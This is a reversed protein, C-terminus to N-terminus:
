DPERGCYSNPSSGGSCYYTHEFITRSSAHTTRASSFDRSRRIYDAFSRSYGKALESRVSEGHVQGIAPNETCRRREATSGDFLEHDERGTELGARPNAQIAILRKQSASVESKLDHMGGEVTPILGELRKGMAERLVDKNREEERSGMGIKAKEAMRGMLELAGVTGQWKGTKKGLYKVLVPLLGIVLAESRLNSFLADIAYQASERITSNKDALADFVGAVLGEEQLLFVVEAIAEHPPFREFLAGLAFMSGERRVASKKDAAAKKIESLIGYRQLGCAGVSNILLDTLAYSADLSAQSTQSTLIKSLIASVEDQTPPVAFTESTKIAVTPAMPPSDHHPM